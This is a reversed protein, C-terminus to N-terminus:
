EAEREEYRELLDYLGDESLVGRRLDKPLLGAEDDAYDRKWVKSGYYAELSDIKLRLAEEEYATLEAKGLLEEAENMIDEYGSIRRIQILRRRRERSKIASVTLCVIGAAAAACVIVAAATEATDCYESTLYKKM